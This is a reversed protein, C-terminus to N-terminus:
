QRWSKESSGYVGRSQWMISREEVVGRSVTALTENLLKQTRAAPAATQMLWRSPQPDVGSHDATTEPFASTTDVSRAAPAPGSTGSSYNSARGACLFHNGRWQATKKFCCSLTHMIKSAPADALAFVHDPSGARDIAIQTPSTAPTFNSSLMPQVSHGQYWARDATQSQPQTPRPSSSISSSKPPSFLTRAGAALNVSIV